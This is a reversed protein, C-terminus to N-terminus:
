AKTSAVESALREQEAQHEELWKLEEEIKALMQEDEADARNRAEEEAEEMLREKAAALQERQSSPLRVWM